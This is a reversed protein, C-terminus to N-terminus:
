RRFPSKIFETKGEPGRALKPMLLRGVDSESDWLAECGNESSQIAYQKDNHVFYTAENTPKGMYKPREAAMDAFRGHWETMTPEEPEIPKDLRIPATGPSLEALREMFYGSHLVEFTKWSDDGGVQFLTAGLLYDDKCIEDNYRRISDAWYAEPTSAQGPRTTYGVDAGAVVANTIGFETILALADPRVQRIYSHIRRYRLALWCGGDGRQEGGPFWKDPENAKSLGYDHLRWLTPWDYEHYGYLRYRALTEGFAEVVGPGLLNGTGANLAVPEAKVGATKITDYFTAQFRDYLYWHATPVDGALPENHSEVADILGERVAQYHLISDAKQAGWLEPDDQYPQSQWWERGIVFCDPLNTKLWYFFGIDSLNLSKFIIPRVHLLEQKLKDSHVQSHFGIKLM